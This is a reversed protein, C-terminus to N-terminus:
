WPSRRIFVAVANFDVNGISQEFCVNKELFLLLIVFYSHLLSLLLHSLFQWFITHLVRAFWIILWCRVFFGLQFFESGLKHVLLGQSTALHKRGGPYLWVVEALSVSAVPNNFMIINMFCIPCFSPTGSLLKLARVSTNELTGTYIRSTTFM